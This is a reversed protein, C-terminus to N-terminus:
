ENLLCLVMRKRSLYNSYARMFKAPTVNVDPCILLSTQIPFLYLLAHKNRLTTLRM